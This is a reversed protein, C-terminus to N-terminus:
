KKENFLDKVRGCILPNYMGVVRKIIFAAEEVSFEVEERAYCRSTLDFCKMKDAESFNENPLVNNLATFIVKKWTIPKKEDQLPKNEYDLVEDSIKIKM